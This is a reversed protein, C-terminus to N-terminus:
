SHEIRLLSRHEIAEAHEGPPERESGSRGDRGVLCDVFEGDDIAKRMEDGPREDDGFRACRSVAVPQELRRPAVRAFLQASGRVRALQIPPVRAVVAIPPGTGRVIPQAHGVRTPARSIHGLAVVHARREVPRESRAAVTRHADCKGARRPRDPGLQREVAFTVAAEFRRGRVDARVGCRGVFRPERQPEPEVPRERRRIARDRGQRASDIQVTSQAIRAIQGERQQAERVLFRQRAAETV